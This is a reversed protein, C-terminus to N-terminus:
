LQGIVDRFIANLAAKPNGDLIGQPSTLDSVSADPPM